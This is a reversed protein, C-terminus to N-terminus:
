ERPLHGCVDVRWPSLNLMPHKNHRLKEFQAVIFQGSYLLKSPTFYIKSGQMTLVM